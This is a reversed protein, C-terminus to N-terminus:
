QMTMGQEPSKTYEHIFERDNRSVTGYATATYGSGQLQCEGYDHFDFGLFAPDDPDFGAEKLIYEAYYDPSMIQPDFDYCDLNNAIDLVMDLDCCDEVMLVAKYKALTRSDSFATIREALTNLQRIDEDGALQFKLAPVISEAEAIM